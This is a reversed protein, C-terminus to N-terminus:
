ELLYEVDPHSLLPSYEDPIQNRNAGEVIRDRVQQWEKHRTVVRVPISHLMLTKAIRMRHSGTYHFFDGNRGINVAMSMPRWNKEIGAKGFSVGEPPLFGNERISSYLKEFRDYYEFLDEESKGKERFKRLLEKHESTEHWATNNLFKEKLQNEFYMVKKKRLDFDHDAVVCIPLRQIPFSSTKEYVTLPDIWIIRFPHLEAKFHRATILWNMTMLFPKFLKSLVFEKQKLDSLNKHVSIEM